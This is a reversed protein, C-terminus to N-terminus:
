IVSQHTFFGEVDTSASLQLFPSPDNYLADNPDTTVAMGLMAFASFHGTELLVEADGVLGTGLDFRVFDAAANFDTGNFPVTYQYDTLNLTGTYTSSAANANGAFVMCLAVICGITTSVKM